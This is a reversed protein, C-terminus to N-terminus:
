RYCTTKDANRSLTSGTMGSGKLNNSPKIELGYGDNSITAVSYRSFSQIHSQSYRNLHGTKYVPLYNYQLELTRGQVKGYTNPGTIRSGVQNFELRTPYVSGYDQSCEWIGGFWIVSSASMGAELNRLPECNGKLCSYFTKYINLKESLDPNRETRNKIELDRVINNLWLRLSQKVIRNSRQLSGAVDGGVPVPVKLSYTESEVVSNIYSKWNNDSLEFASSNNFSLFSIIFSVTIILYFYKM